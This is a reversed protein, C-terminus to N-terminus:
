FDNNQKKYFISMLSLFHSVVNLISISKWISYSSFKEVFIDNHFLTKSNIVSTKM